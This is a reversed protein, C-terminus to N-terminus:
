KRDTFEGKLEDIRRHAQSASSEVAKIREGHNSVTVELREVDSKIGVIVDLKANITGRWEADNAIRKDRGALWGALGVFCGIVAILAGLEVTGM